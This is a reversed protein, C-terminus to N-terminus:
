PLRRTDPVFRDGRWIFYGHRSPRTAKMMVKAVAFPFLFVVIFGVAAWFDDIM